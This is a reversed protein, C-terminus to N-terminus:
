SNEGEWIRDPIYWSGDNDDWVYGDLYREAAEIAAAETDYMKSSSYEYEFDRWVSFMYGLINSARTIAVYIGNEQNAYTTNNLSDFKEL